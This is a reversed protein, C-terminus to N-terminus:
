NEGKKLQEAMKPYCEQCIDYVDDTGDEVDKTDIYKGLKRKCVCCYREKKLIKEAKPKKFDFIGM